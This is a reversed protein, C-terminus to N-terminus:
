GGDAAPETPTEPGAAQALGFAKALSGLLGLAGDLDSGNDVKALNAAGDTLTRIAQALDRKGQITPEFIYEAAYTNDRGGFNHIVTPAFMQARLRIADDLMGAELIARRAANDLQKAATAAALGPRAFHLGHAKAVKGVTSYSRGVEAAIGRCSGGANVLELIKATEADTLPKGAM